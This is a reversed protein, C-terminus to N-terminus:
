RLKVVMERWVQGLLMSDSWSRFATRWVCKWLIRFGVALSRASSNTLHFRSLAWFMAEPFTVVYLHIMSVILSMTVLLLVRLSLRM